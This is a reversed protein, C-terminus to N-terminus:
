RKYVMPEALVEEYCEVNGGYHLSEDISHKTIDINTLRRSGLHAAQEKQPRTTIHSAAPQKLM